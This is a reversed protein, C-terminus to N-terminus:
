AHNGIFRAIRRIAKGGEPIYDAFVHFVNPLDHWEELSGSVREGLCREHDRAGAGEGHALQCGGPTGSQEHGESGGSVAEITTRGVGYHFEETLYVHRGDDMALVCVGPKITIVSHTGPQGDPRIVDDQRVDIWSERCVEHSQVIQWPGHEQM